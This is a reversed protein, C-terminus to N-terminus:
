QIISTLMSTALFQKNVFEQCFAYIKSKHTIDSKMWSDRSFGFEEAIQIDTVNDMRLIEMCTVLVYYTVVTDFFSMAHM